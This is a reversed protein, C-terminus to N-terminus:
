CGDEEKLGRRIGAGRLPPMEDGPEERPIGGSHPVMGEVRAIIQRLHLIVLDRRTVSDLGHHERLWQPDMQVVEDLDEHLLTDKDNEFSKVPNWGDESWYDDQSFDCNHCHLYAM